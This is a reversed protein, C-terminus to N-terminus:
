FLVADGSFLANGHAGYRGVHRPLTLRESGIQSGRRAPMDAGFFYDLVKSRRTLRDTPRGDVAIQSFKLSVANDLTVHRIAPLRGTKLVDIFGILRRFVEMEFTLAASRKLMDLTVREAIQSVM